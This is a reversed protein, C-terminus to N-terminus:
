QTFLFLFAMKLDKVSFLCGIHFLSAISKLKKTTLPDIMFDVQILWCEEPLWMLSVFLQISVFATIDKRVLM